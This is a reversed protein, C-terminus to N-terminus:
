QTRDTRDIAFKSNVYREEVCEYCYLIVACVASFKINFGHCRGDDNM